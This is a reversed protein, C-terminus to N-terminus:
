HNRKSEIRGGLPLQMQNPDEHRKGILGLKGRIFYVKDTLAHFTRGPFHKMLQQFTIRNAKYLDYVKIIHGDSMDWRTGAIKDRDIRQKAKRDLIIKKQDM